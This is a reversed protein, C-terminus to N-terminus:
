KRVINYIPIPPTFAQNSEPRAYLTRVVDMGSVVKGFAAYGQGDPNNEGGFDFGPQDGICIFFETTGTGPNDRALSIVGNTHLIHTDRTPEHPVGPLSVAKSHHTKWIGGQILNSVPSGTVQNDDNLVRYFSGTRYFGADVYSLFAGATKPAQRLYLEIEIDGAATRILVHPLNPDSSHCAPALVILLLYLFSRKM